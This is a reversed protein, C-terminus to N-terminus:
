RFINLYNADLGQPVFVTLFINALALDIWESASFNFFIAQKM